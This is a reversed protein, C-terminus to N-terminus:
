RIRRTGGRGDRKGFFFDQAVAAVQDHGFDAHFTLQLELLGLNQADAGAAEAGREAEIESCSSDAADAENIEVRYIGGVQLALNEEAGFVYAAGFDSCGAIAQAVQVGINLNVSELRMEGALVREVNQFVVVEDHVAGVIEGRAIEDVVRADEEALGVHVAGNETEFALYGDETIGVAGAIAAQIGFRRRWAQHGRAGFAAHEAHKGSDDARDLCGFSQFEDDADTFGEDATQQEEVREGHAEALELEAFIGIAREAASM